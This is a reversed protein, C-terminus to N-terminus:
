EANASQDHTLSAPLPPPMENEPPVAIITKRGSALPVLVVDIAKQALSIRNIALDMQAFLATKTDRTNAANLPGSNQPIGSLKEIETNINVINSAVVTMYVAIEHSFLVVDHGERDWTPISAHQIARKRWYKEILTIEMKLNELIRYQRDKEAKERDARQEDWQQKIIEASRETARAADRSGHAAVVAYRLGVAYVIAAVVSSVATVATWDIQRWIDWFLSM